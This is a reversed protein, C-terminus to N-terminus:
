DIKQNFILLKYVNTGAAAPSGQLRLFQANVDYEYLGAGYIYNVSTGTQLNKAQVSSFNTALMANGQTSGNAGSDNSAQIALSGANLTVIQVTARDWGSLDVTIKYLSNFEAAYDPLPKGIAM